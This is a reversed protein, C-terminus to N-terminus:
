AMNQQEPAQASVAAAPAVVPQAMVPQAYPAPTVPAYAPKAMPVVPATAPQAAYAPQAMPVPDGGGPAAVPQAMPVVPQAYPPPDSGQYSAPQAYPPQSAPQSESYVYPATGNTAYGPGGQGMVPQVEHIAGAPTLGKDRADLQIKHQTQMCACVSCWVIDAILDVFNAAQDISDDNTLMAIITCICALQQMCFTFAMLCNDCKTNQILLEDQIMFRTAIVSTPFCITSEMCLCCEPASSEGCKGSCPMYGSCCTYNEMREYLARYRLWYSMCCCCFCSTTCWCCSNTGKGYCPTSWIDGSLWQQSYTDRMEHREKDYKTHRSM